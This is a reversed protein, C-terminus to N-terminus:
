EGRLVKMRWVREGDVVELWYIGTALENVHIRISSENNLIIAQDIVKRGNTDYMKLTCAGRMNEPFQVNLEKKVPNPYLSIQGEDDVQILVVHSYSFSGEVDVQKLRYFNSGNQYSRDLYQYNSIDASNGKGAVEGIKEFTEGDFSREMEFYDNDFESATQWNLLVGEETKRGTFNLLEVPLATIRGVGISSFGTNFTATFSLDNGLSGLTTAAGEKPDTPQPNTIDNTTKLLVISSRNQSTAGEWGSIEAETFYTTIKYSGSANNNDPTVQLAKSAIYDATNASWAEEAGTGARMVALTTCGYDHNSLNEIKAMIGGSTPDYYNVTQFPGLYQEDAASMNEATQVTAAQTAQISVNDIATGYLWGTGDNYQFAIKVNSNGVYASLDVSTGNVWPCSYVGSGLHTSSNTISYISSSWNSGGDTSVILDFTETSVDAFAHDFTLTAATTTSLDIVPSILRVESMDCNCVDDNAYAFQSSNSSEIMYYTSSATAADATAFGSSGSTTTTFGGMGSEFDESLLVVPASEPEYDEDQITLTHTQNNIDLLADGGNANLTYTFSATEGGDVVADDYIRVVVDQTMNAGDLTVVNPTFTYDSDSGETATGGPPNFTVTAAVSPATAIQVTVTQELYDQCQNSINANAESVTSSSSTFSVAPMACTYVRVDDIYWGDWGNCGDTGMEWRFQVNDGAGVGISSLDIQSQGWTGSVSGGDAGTWSDQGALPNTNGQAGTKLAENYPNATFASSPLLTWSGGNLSYKINGGDWTDETSLYHDFAMQITGPTGGPINIVPSQLRIIGDDLDTVCDGVSPDTGFAVSGARNDPPTNDIVWDRADWTGPNVPVQALTWSGFGTEFDEYFIAHAPMAGVCLNPATSFLPSYGCADPDTRLEVALLVKALEAQDAASIIEGSPGAPTSTTSLGELNVGLLDTCASELADAFVAFDSTKTIYVSQAQWFIHAAKVFGIGSITQGNYTGGDVLLAYAHNPVGSNSHVGGSDGAGCTYQSDTVKGPHGDCTPEWMDRIAGGFATADEGMRWRDSSTCGTRLSLDEGSDEYANYLDITEGWVDSFSENLAGSQYAYILGSTYETYAHGWEHAVVDDAATGTCYNATVGNWNANPCSIGPDNNVTRMESDANDYSTWGFANEFFYYSHEAAALENQQWIDLSGPLADGEQWIQNGTNNEYLRRYLAHAMGTYQEVIDGTHANVYVFERIDHGNRVEIEYALHNPAEVGQALGKNFIYLQNNHVYLPDSSLTKFQDLVLELAIENAVEISLAPTTNIKIDPIFNGNVGSLKLQSDFHFNLRGDFVPVGGYQQQLILHKRGYKDTRTDKYQLQDENTRFGLIDGRSQIFNETKQEPTTGSLKLSRDKPFRIFNAAKTTKSISIKAQTSKQFADLKQSRDLNSQAYSSFSFTLLLVLNTLIHQKRM